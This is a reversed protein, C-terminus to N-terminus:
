RFEYIKNIKRGIFGAALAKFLDGWIFPLAGSIFAKYVGIGSVKGLWPVGILYVIIIGGLISSFILRVISDGKGKILSIVITGILFGILYGGTPGAIVGIGARGGSFVPIGIIGLFLFTSISLGAQIPTLVCGALMVALTQATIPVPSFPLPIIVYGLVSIIAAFMASYIIDRINIKKTM